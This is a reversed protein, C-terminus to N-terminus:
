HETATLISSFMLLLLHFCTRSLFLSTCTQTAFSSSFSVTQFYVNYSFLSYLCPGATNAAHITYWLELIFLSDDYTMGTIINDLAMQM